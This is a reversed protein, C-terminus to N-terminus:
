LNINVSNFADVIWKPFNSRTGFMDMFFKRAFDCFSGEIISRRIKRMLDLQYFINHITILHCAITERQILSHLLARSYNKCTSCHCDSEIPQFDDEYVTQKLHLVGNKCLATGFRATRTPYVCDFMDVGLAVCVMIDTAYGVGMCYIPKDQPILDTCHKVVRWFSDKDEGGSLGGIAYGNMNRELMQKVCKSRMELDLGGQIIPFLNQENSRKNAVICRDLWRITRDLAQRVREGTTLSHVVDDLQMIIDAGIINQIEISREPTLLMETGDRPSCFLVGEETVKSLKSLSVMQFGGSDTLLSSNWKMFNHLGNHQNLITEGPRCGLHYTNGLIIQCNMSEMQSSTLGKMTGQTGVPMFVPSDVSSHSLHIKGVKAKSGSKCNALVDFKLGM